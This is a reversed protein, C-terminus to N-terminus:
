DRQRALIEARKLAVTTAAPSIQEAQVILPLAATLDGRGIHADALQLLPHVQQSITDSFDSM